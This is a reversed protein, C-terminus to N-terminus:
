RQAEGEEVGADQVAVQRAVQDALKGGFDEAFHVRDCHADARHDGQQLKRRGDDRHPEDSKEVGGM